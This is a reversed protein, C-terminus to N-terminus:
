NAETWANVKRWNLGAPMIDAAFVWHNDTQGCHPCECFDLVRAATQGWLPNRNMEKPADFKQNCRNCRVPSGESVIM